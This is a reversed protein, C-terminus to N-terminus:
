ALPLILIAHLINLFKVALYPTKLTLIMHRGVMHRLLDYAARGHSTVSIMHRGVMHRLLLYVGSDNSHVTCRIRLSM